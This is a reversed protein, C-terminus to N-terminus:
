AYKVIKGPKTYRRYASFILIIICFIGITKVKDSGIQEALYVINKFFRVQRGYGHSYDVPQNIIRSLFITGLSTLIIWVSNFILPRIRNEAVIEKRFRRLSSLRNITQLLAKRDSIEIPRHYVEGEKFYSIIFYREKENHSIGKLEEIPIVIIEEFARPNLISNHISDDARHKISSLVIEKPSFCMTKLNRDELDVIQYKNRM